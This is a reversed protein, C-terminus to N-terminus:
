APPEEEPADPDDGEKKKPKEAPPELKVAQDNITWDVRSETMVAVIRVPGIAKEISQIEDSARPYYRENNSREAPTDGAPYGYLLM